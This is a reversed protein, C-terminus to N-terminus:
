RKQGAARPLKAPAEPAPLDNFFEEANTLRGIEWLKEVTEAAVQKWRQVDSQILNTQQELEFARRRWFDIQTAQCASENKLDNIEQELQAVMAELHVVQQGTFMPFPLSFRSRHAAARALDGFSLGDRSLIQRAMRVAGLAEGDHSSDALALVKDLQNVLRQNM